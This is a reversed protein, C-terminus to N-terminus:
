GVHPAFDKLVLQCEERGNWVHRQPSFVLDLMGEKAQALRRGMAFGIGQLIM